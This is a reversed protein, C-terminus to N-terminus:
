PGTWDVGEAKTVSLRGAPYPQMLQAAVHPDGTLWTEFHVPDLLVGMRDHIERVDASPECTVTAVQDVSVGGPGRWTDCIAAFAM